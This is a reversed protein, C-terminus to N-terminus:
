VKMVGLVTTFVMWIVFLLLTSVYVIMVLAYVFYIIQQKRSLDRLYVPTKRLTMWHIFLVFARRRFNVGGLIAELAHYGDSPMLPNLNSIFTMTQLALLVHFTAGIWGGTLLSILASVAAASIDFAPGALSIRMRQKPDRLRYADTRDTYAVPLVYYLLAVGVARIKVYYYSGVLTHCFEHVTLHLLFACVVLPWVVSGIHMNTGFQVIVAFVVLTAVILWLGLLTSTTDNVLMSFRRVLGYAVPRNPRWLGLRLMPRSTAKKAARTVWPKQEAGPLLLVRAEHLQQLFPTLKEAILEEKGPYRHVLEQELEFCSLSDSREQLIRVIDAGLTNLRVYNQHEGVYLLPIDNIGLLLEVDKALIIPQRAVDTDDPAVVNTVQTEMKYVM